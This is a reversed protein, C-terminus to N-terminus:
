PRRRCHWSSRGTGYFLSMTQRITQELADSYFCGVVLVLRNWGLLKCVVGFIGLTAVLGVDWMRGSYLFGFYCGAAVVLLAAVRTMAAAMAPVTADRWAPVIWAYTALWLQPSFLGLLGEAVFLFGIAVIPTAVGDILQEFGMTLRLQGTVSDLGVAGLLLGLLMLGVAQLHSRCALTPVVALILVILAAHEAPGFHLM